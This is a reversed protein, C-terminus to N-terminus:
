AEEEEEALPASPRVVFTHEPRWLLRVADGPRVSADAGLNQSYVTFTHGDPGDVSYQHSVGVYTAM